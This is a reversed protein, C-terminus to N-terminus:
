DIEEKVHLEDSYDIEIGEKTFKIKHHLPTILEKGIESEEM